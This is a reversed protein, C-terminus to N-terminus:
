LLSLSYYINETLPIHVFDISIIVKVLHYTRSYHLPLDQKYHSEALVMAKRCRLESLQSMVDAAAIEAMGALRGAGGSQCTPASDIASVTEVGLTRESGPWFMSCIPASDLHLQHPHRGPPRHSAGSVSASCTVGPAQRSVLLFQQWARALTVISTQGSSIDHEPFDASIVPDSPSCFSLGSGIISGSSSSDPFLSTYLKYCAQGSISYSM